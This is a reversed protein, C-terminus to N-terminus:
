TCRHAPAATRRAPSPSASAPSAQQAAAAAQATALKRQLRSNEARLTKLRADCAEGPDGEGEAAGALHFLALLACGVAVRPM